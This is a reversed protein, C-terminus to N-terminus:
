RLSTLGLQMRQEEHKRSKCTKSIYFTLVPEANIPRKRDVEIFIKGLSPLCSVPPLSFPPLSFPVAQVADNNIEVFAYFGWSVVALAGVAAQIHEIHPSILVDVMM